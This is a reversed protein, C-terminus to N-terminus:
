ESAAGDDVADSTDEKGVSDVKPKAKPKKVLPPSPKPMISSRAIQEDSLEYPSRPDGEDDCLDFAKDYQEFTEPPDNDGSARKVLNAIGAPTRYFRAIEEEMTLPKHVEVVLPVPDLVESRSVNYLEWTTENSAVVDCLESIAPPITVLFNGASFYRWLSAGVMLSVPGTCRLYCKGSVKIM